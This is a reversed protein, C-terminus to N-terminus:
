ALIIDPQETNKIILNYRNKDGIEQKEYTLKDGYLNQVYDQIFQMAENEIQTSDFSILKKTLELM